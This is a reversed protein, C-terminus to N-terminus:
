RVAEQPEEVRDDTRVQHPAALDAGAAATRRRLLFDLALVGAPYV